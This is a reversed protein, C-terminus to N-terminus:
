ARDLVLLILTRTPNVNIFNQLTGLGSIERDLLRRPELEKDVQLGGFVEPDGHRRRQKGAGVLHDFSATRNRKHGKVSMGAASVFTQM